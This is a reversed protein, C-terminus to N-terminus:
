KFVSVYCKALFARESDSIEQEEEKSMRGLVDEIDSEKIYDAIRDGSSRMQEYLQADIGWDAFAKAYIAQKRVDRLLSDDESTLPLVEWFENKCFEASLKKAERVDRRAMLGLSLLCSSLTQRVLRAEEAVNEQQIIQKLLLAEADGGVYALAEAASPWLRSKSHDQLIATIQPIALPDVGKCLHWRREIVHFRMCAVGVSEEVTLRAHISGNLANRDLKPLIKRSSVASDECGTMISLLTMASLIISVCLRESEFM